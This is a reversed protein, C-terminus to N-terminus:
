RSVEEVADGIIAELEHYVLRQSVIITLFIALLIFSSIVDQEFGCTSCDYPGRQGITEVHHRSLFLSIILQFHNVDQFPLFPIHESSTHDGSDVVVGHM